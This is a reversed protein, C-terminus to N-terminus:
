VMLVYLRQKVAELDARLMDAGGYEKLLTSFSGFQEVFQPASYTAGQELDDIGFLSYHDLSAEWFRLPLSIITKNGYVRPEEAALLYGRDLGPQRSYVLDRLWNEEYSWFRSVRDHRMPVRPLDFGVKALIDVDDAADLQFYHRFAAIYVDQEKLEARLDNRTNKDIWIRLLEYIATAAIGRIIERSQQRYEEFPIKRGDAFCVYRESNSLFVNVGEAM